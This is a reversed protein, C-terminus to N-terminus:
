AGELGGPTDTDGHREERIQYKLISGIWDSSVENVIKLEEANTLEAGKFTDLFAQSLKNKVDRVLSERQHIRM